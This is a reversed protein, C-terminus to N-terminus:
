WDCNEEYGLEILLDNWAGSCCTKFVRKIEEDFYNVWDGAIGKRLFASPDETGPDRGTQHKFSLKRYAEDIRAKNRRVGLFMLVQQLEGVPDSLLAEYRVCHAHQYLGWSQLRCRLFDGNKMIQVLRDHVKLKRFEEGWGGQSQPLKALYFCSSVVVDRPDRIVTVFMINKPLSSVAVNPPYSHSKLIYGGVPVHINEVYQEIDIDVPLVNPVSKIVDAPFQFHDFDCLDYLLKYLWTSGVKHASGIVVLQRIRCLRRVRKYLWKRYNHMSCVVKHMMRFLISLSVPHHKRM